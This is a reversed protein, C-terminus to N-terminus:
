KFKKIKRKIDDIPQLYYHHIQNPLIQQINEGWEIFNMYAIEFLELIGLDLAEEIKKIRYFDFHYVVGKPSEYDNILSFTPSQVMSKVGIVKCMSKILTTKGAGLGGDIRIIHYNANKLIENAIQDIDKIHYIEDMLIQSILVKDSGM